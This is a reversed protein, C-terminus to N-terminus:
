GGSDTEGTGSKNTDGSGPELVKEIKETIEEVNREAARLEESRKDIMEQHSYETSDIANELHEKAESFHQNAEHLKEILEESINKPSANEMQSKFIM